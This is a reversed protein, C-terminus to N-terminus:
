VVYLAFYLFLWLLVVFYWYLSSVVVGSRRYQHYKGQHAKVTVCLLIILGALVHVGHAASVTYLIGGFVNGGLPVFKLLR